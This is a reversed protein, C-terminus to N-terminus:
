RFRWRTATGQFYAGGDRGSADALWGFALHPRVAYFPESLWNPEIIGHYKQSFLSVLQQIRRPDSVKEAEGEIIVVSSGSELHVTIAPNTALNEAARSVTNFYFIEDLWVGWVPRCHPRGDPRTTAIWYILAEKFQESAWTWPLQVPELPGPVRFMQPQSTEPGSDKRSDTGKEM